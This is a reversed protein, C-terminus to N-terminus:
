EWENRLQNLQNNIETLSQKAMAGKYKVAWDVMNEEQREEKRLRILKLSELDQLLKVAKKNLIDVVVTQMIFSNLQSNKTVHVRIM